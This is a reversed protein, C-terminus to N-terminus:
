ESIEKVSLKDAIEAQRLKISNIQEELSLNEAELQEKTPIIEPAPNEVIYKWNAIREAKVRDIEAQSPVSAIPYYLCDSFQLPNGMGKLQVDETFRIQIYRTESAFCINSFLLLSLILYKM